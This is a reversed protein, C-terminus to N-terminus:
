EILLRHHNYAIRPRRDGTIKVVANVPIQSGGSQYQLEATSPQWDVGLRDLAEKAVQEFGGPSDLMPQHTIANIRIKALLGEGIPALLNTLKALVQEVESANGLDFFDAPLFVCRRSANIRERIADILTM